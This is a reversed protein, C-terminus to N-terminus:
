ENKAKKRKAMVGPEVSGIGEPQLKTKSRSYPHFDGSKGAFKGTSSKSGMEKIDGVDPSDIVKLGYPKM